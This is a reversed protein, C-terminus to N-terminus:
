KSQLSKLYETLVNIRIDVMATDDPAHLSKFISGWVPMERSGHAPVENSAKIFRKVDIEPFTGHNEFALLTLDAPRKKLASAAPGDGKGEKGHCVACYAMFMEKGSSPLTMTVPTQKIQTQKVQQAILMGAPITLVALLWAIRVNM